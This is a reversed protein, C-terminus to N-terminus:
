VGIGGAALPVPYINPHFIRIRIEWGRKPSIRIEERTKTVFNAWFEDRFTAVILFTRSACLTSILNKVM